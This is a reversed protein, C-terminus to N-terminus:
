DFIDILYTDIERQTLDYFQKNEQHLDSALERGVFRWHWPEFIYYSNGAPYSIAFGYKHANENLWKYSATTDFKIFPEKDVEGFDITTGLQHESYGQDASFTNAGSGYITINQGKITTQEEFSRYASVVRIKVGANEADRLMDNLYPLVRGELYRDKTQDYTFKKDILTLNKPIYNESLFSVKSYKRLLEPDLQNLKEIQSVSGTIKRVENELERLLENGDAVEKELKTNVETQDALDNELKGVEQHKVALEANLKTNVYFLYGGTGALVVIIAIFIVKKVEYNYLFITM